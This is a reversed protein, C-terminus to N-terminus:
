PLTLLPQSRGPGAAKLKDPIHILARNAKLSIQSIKIEALTQCKQGTGLALLIALKKAIIDM